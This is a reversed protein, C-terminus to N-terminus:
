NSVSPTPVCSLIASSASPFSEPNFGAVACVSAVAAASADEAAAAAAADVTAAAPASAIDASCDLFPCGAGEM